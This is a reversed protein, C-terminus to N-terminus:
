EGKAVAEVYGVVMSREERGLRHFLVLLRATEDDESYFYAAPVNLVTSIQQVISFNAEHKGTEYQNMRASASAPDIGAEIGLKEQSFGAAKRAEKLRKSFISM